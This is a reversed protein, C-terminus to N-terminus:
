RARMSILSRISLITAFKGAYPRAGSLRRAAAAREPKPPHCRRREGTLFSAKPYFRLLVLNPQGDPRYLPGIGAFYGCQFTQMHTLFSTPKYFSYPPNRFQHSPVEKAWFLGIEDKKKRLPLSLIM